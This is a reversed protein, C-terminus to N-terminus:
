KINNNKEVEELRLLENSLITTEPLSWNKNLFSTMNM